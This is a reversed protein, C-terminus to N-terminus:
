IQWLIPKQLRSDGGTIHSVMPVARFLKELVSWRLCLSATPDGLCRCTVLIGHVGFHSRVQVSPCVAPPGPPCGSRVSGLALGMGLARCGEGRHEPRTTSVSHRPPALWMQLLAFCLAPDGELVGEPPRSGRPARLACPFGSGRPLPHGVGPFGWKAGLGPASPSSPGPSCGEEGMVVLLFCCVALLLM